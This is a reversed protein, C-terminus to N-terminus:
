ESAEEKDKEITIQVKINEASYNVLLEAVSMATNGNDFVFDEYRTQVTYKM